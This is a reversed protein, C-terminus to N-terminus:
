DKVCRVSYGISKNFISRQVYSWDCGMYRCWALSADFEYESSSWWFGNYGIAWFAGDYYRYGGPLATFGSENTAGANPSQWHTTGTEKLKGGAESEGLYTTLTTWEADTSVHWGTPCLNRSDNVAYWNYLKGYPNEYTVSDNNYWCYAGTTLIAWAAGDTVKPITDGNRYTNTFLNEILWCQTGILVTNYTQDYYSVTPIGPCPEYATIFSVEYGYATGASYTAYARVYYTESATLGTMNSIFSGIGAGDTTLNDTITPTGTTNWCVGRATVTAGGDSTVNGGSTATTQTVDSIDTTIVTPQTAVAEGSVCRVSFGSPKDYNDGNLRSHGRYIWFCWAYNPDYDLETTSWWWGYIGVLQFSGDPNRIGGPLGSYGSTNTAGINPTTWLIAAKMKGGAILYGGLYTTLAIREADTPVRWGSPCLNRSDNVTYWNYMAGYIPNNTTSDNNYYCRAGTTLGSWATNDTVNPIYDGNSYHTVHLNQAMWEQNGIRVTPYANGDVDIMNSGGGERGGLFMWGMGNYYYFGATGDTQYILLGIAPSVIIIRQAATMRPILMGASTSKVDLMASADPNTGDMNVGVQGFAENIILVSISCIILFLSKIKMTQIKVVRFM